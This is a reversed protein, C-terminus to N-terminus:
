PAQFVMTTQNKALVSDLELCCNQMSLYFTALVNYNFSMSSIFIFIKMYHLSSNLSMLFMNKITNTDLLVHLLEILSAFKRRSNLKSRKHIQTESGAKRQHIHTGMYDRLSNSILFISNGLGTCLAHKIHQLFLTIVSM